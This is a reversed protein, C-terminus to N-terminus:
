YRKNAEYCDYNSLNKLNLVPMCASNFLLLASIGNDRFVLDFAPALALAHSDGWVVVSIIEANVEGLVFGLNPREQKLGVDECRM